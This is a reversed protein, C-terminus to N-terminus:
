ARSFVARAAVPREVPITCVPQTSKCAGGWRAFRRGRAPLATLRLPSGARVSPRCTRACTPGGLVALVIALGRM